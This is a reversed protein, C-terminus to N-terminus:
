DLIDGCILDFLGRIEALQKKVVSFASFVCLAFFHKKLNEHLKLTGINEKSPRKLATGESRSEITLWCASMSVDIANERENAQNTRILPYIM